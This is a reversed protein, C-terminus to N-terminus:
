VDVFRMYPKIEDWGKPFMEIAKENSINPLILCKEGKKWNEPTAVNFTSTLQLSDLVRLMEGFCRGTSTPYHTMLRIKKSPDIIFTTRITSRNESKPHYMGIERSVYFEPDAIIPFTVETENILNLDEVWKLHDDITDCSLAIVKTKREEFKKIIKAVKAIETSCVPTFDRPHSLLILWNDGQYDHINFDGLHTQVYVNPFEDGLFLCKYDM